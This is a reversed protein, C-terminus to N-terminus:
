CITLGSPSSKSIWSGSCQRWHCTNHNKLKLSFFYFSQILKSVKLSFIYRLIMIPVIEINKISRKNMNNRPWRITLSNDAIKCVPDVQAFNKFLKPDLFHYLFWNNNSNLTINLVYGRNFIYSQFGYLRWLQTNQSIFLFFRFESILIALSFTIWPLYKFEKKKTWEVVIFNYHIIM